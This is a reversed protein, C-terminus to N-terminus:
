SQWANKKARSFGNRVANRMKGYNYMGKIAAGAASRGIRGRLSQNTKKLGRTDDHGVNSYGRTPDDERYSIMKKDGKPTEYDGTNVWNSLKQNFDNTDNYTEDDDIWDKRNSWINKVADWGQGEQIVENVCRRVINHLDSETLRITKKM